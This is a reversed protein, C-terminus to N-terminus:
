RIAVFDNHNFLVRILSQAARRGAHEADQKNMLRRQENLFAECATLEDPTPSRSLVHEFAATVLAAWDSHQVDSEVAQGRAVQQCLLDALSVSLSHVLDSNALALAQQPVVSRTRRYCENADPADFLTGLPSKGDVEPQCSYYLSRRFTTLSEKNELEQGGILTDLKEACFLLSDRVVEAEMRGVNMRWLFRNQPDREANGADDGQSSAMQYTRSTVILRHVHKMSWGSDMLEVALWDLLEPHTPPAGNRGFDFVTSVLPAQFHRMWIHNIAVRATLPNERSGIWEALVKRRGTSQAPYVPGLPTYTSPIA